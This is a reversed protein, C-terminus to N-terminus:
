RAGTAIWTVLQEATDHDLREHANIHGLISGERLREALRHLEATNGNVKEYRRALEAFSSARKAPPSGHCNLCGKDLALQGGDTAATGATGVLLLGACAIGACARQLGM